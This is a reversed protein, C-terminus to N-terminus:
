LAVKRRKRRGIKKAVRAAAGAPVSPYRSVHLKKAAKKLRVLGPVTSRLTSGKRLVAAGIDIVDARWDPFAIVAPHVRLAAALMKVRKIGMEERGSEFASIASQAIGTMKSLDSQSLGQLERAIKLAKGPTLVAHQAEPLYDRATTM